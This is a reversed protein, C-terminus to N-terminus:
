LAEAMHLHKQLTPLQSKALAATPKNSGRAQAEFAAIDVQHDHIMFRKVERDFASGRLHQLRAAEEKAEPAISDSVPVGLQRAVSAAQTRGQSHDSVLMAGFKRIQESSGHASILHGLHIESNDGQIADTLFKAPPAAIATSSALLLSAFLLKCIM